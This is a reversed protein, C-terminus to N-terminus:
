GRPRGPFGERKNEKTLLDGSGMLALYQTSKHSGDFSFARPFPIKM